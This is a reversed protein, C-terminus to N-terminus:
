SVETLNFKYKKGSRNNKLFLDSEGEQITWDGWSGDVDNQHGENSLHLDNTYVNRWRNNSLGLDQSGNNQPYLHGSSIKAGSSSTEFKATGNHYLVVSGGSFMRCMFGNALRDYFDHNDSQYRLNGVTGHQIYSNSGDHEIYLDNGTGFFAKDDDAFRISNGNSALDGGLQPSTDSVLDTNIGTLNSGDGYLTTAYVNRWKKNSFGLDVASNNLPAFHNESYGAVNINASVTLNGTVTAGTSTTELKKSNDYFLEVAGDAVFRAM